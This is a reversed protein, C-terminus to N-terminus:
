AQAFPASSQWKDPAPITDPEPNLARRAAYFANITGLNPVTSGTTPAFVPIISSVSWPISQEIIDSETIAPGNGGRTIKLDGIDYSAREM